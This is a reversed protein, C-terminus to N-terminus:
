PRIIGILTFTPGAYALPAGDLVLPAEVWIRVFDMSDPSLTLMSNDGTITDM